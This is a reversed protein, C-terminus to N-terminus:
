LQPILQLILKVDDDIHTMNLHKPVRIKKIGILDKEVLHYKKTVSGTAYRSFLHLWAHVSIHKDRLVQCPSLLCM